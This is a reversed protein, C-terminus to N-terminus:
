RRRNRIVTLMLGLGAVALAFTSPEPVANLEVKFLSTDIIAATSAANSPRLMFIDYSLTNPTTDTYVLSAVGSGNITGGTMSSNIILNGSGGPDLQLDFVFTYQTGSDYGHSGSVAGNALTGASVGNAGWNAATGELSGSGALTWEKLAFPSSAGLTTSFNLFMSYGSFAAQPLSADVTNRAAPNNALALPLAQSSNNGVTTPTFVWTLKLEDGANALTVKTSPQTFYTYIHSSSTTNTESLVNGSAAATNLAGSVTNSVNLAGGSRFWASELNGDADADTGVVGNNEAYTPSAPDTRTGDLWTDNVLVTARSSAALGCVAVIALFTWFSHKTSTIIRSSNM